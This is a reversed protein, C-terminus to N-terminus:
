RGPRTSPHGAIEGMHWCLYSYGGLVASVETDRLMSKDHVAFVSTLHRLLQLQNPTPAFNIVVELKPPLDNVLIEPGRRQIFSQTYTYIICSSCLASLM